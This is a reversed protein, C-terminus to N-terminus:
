RDRQASATESVLLVMWPDPGTIEDVTHFECVLQVLQEACRGYIHNLRGEMHEPLTILLQTWIVVDVFACGEFLQIRGSRQRVVYMSVLTSGELLVRDEDQLPLNSEAFSDASLVRIFVDLLLQGLEPHLWVKFPM